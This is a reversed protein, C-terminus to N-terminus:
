LSCAISLRQERAWRRIMQGAQRMRSSGRMQGLNQNCRGRVQVIARRAHNVEITLLRRSRTEKMPRVRLSWVSSTGRTCAEAYSRVCHRMESGEELLARGTLLEVIVWTNVGGHPEREETEFSEIGSPEWPACVRRSEKALLAHWEEVRKWLAPLTRGKMTLDPEAADAPNFPQAPFGMAREGFRQHGIFDVVPGIRSLELCPNNVFFHIVSAWFPEDPLMRGLKTEAIARALAEDGGIGCTQGWRLAAVISVDRPAELFRHAAMKTLRVPLNATRINQGSGVHLFWDRHQDGELSFGEFWATDMFEPTAYRCFLHRVLSAFQSRLPSQPVTWTEPAELWAEHRLALHLLADLCTNGPQPGLFSVVPEVSLLASRAGLPLVLRYWAETSSPDEKLTAHICKLKQQYASALAGWATKKEYVSRILTDTPRHLEGATKLQIERLDDILM